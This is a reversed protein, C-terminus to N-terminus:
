PTNKQSKLIKQIGFFTSNLTRSFWFGFSNSNQFCCLRFHLSNENASFQLRCKQGPNKDNSIRVVTPGISAQKCFRFNRRLGRFRGAKSASPKSAKSIQRKGSLHGSSYTKSTQLSYERLKTIKNWSLKNIFCHLSLMIKRSGVFLELYSKICTRTVLVVEHLCQFLHVRQKHM